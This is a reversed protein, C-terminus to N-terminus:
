PDSPLVTLGAVLLRRPTPHYSADDGQDADDGDDAEDDTVDYGVDFGADYPADDPPEQDLAGADRVQEDRAQELGLMAAPVATRAHEVLGRVSERQLWRLRRATDPDLHGTAVAAAVEADFRQTAVDDRVDLLGAILDSYAATKASSRATDIV